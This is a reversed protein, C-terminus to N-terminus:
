KNITPAPVSPSKSAASTQVLHALSSEYKSGIAVLEKVLNQKIKGLIDPLEDLSVSSGNINAAQEDTLFVVHPTGDKYVVAYSRTEEAQKVVSQIKEALEVSARAKAMAKKVEELM